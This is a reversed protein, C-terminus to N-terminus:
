KMPVKFKHTIKHQKGYKKELKQQALQMIYWSLKDKNIIERRM